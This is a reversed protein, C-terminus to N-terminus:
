AAVKKVRQGANAIRVPMLILRLRGRNIDDITFRCPKTPDLTEIQLPSVDGAWVAAAALVDALKRPNVAAAFESETVVPTDAVITEWNPYDGVIRNTIWTEGALDISVTPGAIQLRAIDGRVTPTRAWRQLWGAPILTTAPGGAWKISATTTLTRLQFSDTTTWTTHGDAVRLEVGCLIPRGTDNSAGPAVTKIIRKLDAAEFTLTTAM